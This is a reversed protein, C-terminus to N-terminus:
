QTPDFPKFATKFALADARDDEDSLMCAKWDARDPMDLLTVLVERGFRLNFPANFEILHVLKRADPLEVSFYGSRGDTCAALAVTSDEEFVVGRSGGISVFAEEVKNELKRPIPVSHIHAHGGGLRGVEFFVTACGHKANLARLASKLRTSNETEEGTQGALDSSISSFTPVHALPVILVHGGGPVEGNDSVHIQGKPLTLYCENGIAVILHKAINPNSLCFWCESPDLERPPGGRRSRPENGGGGRTNKAVPCDDLYHLESGCARCVYGEKPKRGGTDGVAHKTPCDRLLHGEVNCIRCVYGDPPKDRAPCENIFHDTGDCRRCKYGSGWLYLQNGSSADFPRKHSIRSPAETFPNKTANSPRAPPSSSNPAINFAYFWRQKKGTQPPGGFPGLSLFRTVRGNEDDWVFPEREWFISAGGTFYYRPKLRLQSSATNSMINALSKFNQTASSTSLTNSLLREVSQQAFFPSTFGPAAESSSYVSPDHTGGLCAIRIGQATTVLGSKSMLFVNKCLEGGTKAFKQIVADPLPHEGQMIYCEMPAEIQGDLLENIQEGADDLPGFFDGSCLAFDFKGNKADITMKTTAMSPQLGSISNEPEQELGNPNLIRCAFRMCLAM